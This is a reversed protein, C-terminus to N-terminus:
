RNTAHIRTATLCECIPCEHGNMGPGKCTSQFLCAHCPLMQTGKCIKCKVNKMKFEFISIDTILRQCLTITFKGIHAEDVTMNMAKQMWRYGEQRQMGHSRWFNDFADHAKIRWQKTEQNAPIGLPSGDPHAGHAGKCGEKKRICRYYHRGVKFRDKALTMPSGCEPCPLPKTLPSCGPPLLTKKHNNM